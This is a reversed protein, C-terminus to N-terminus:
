SLFSFPAKSRERTREDQAKVEEENERRSLAFLDQVNLHAYIHVCPAYLSRVSRRATVYTGIYVYMNACPLCMTWGVSHGKSRTQRGSEGSEMWRESASDKTKCIGLRKDGSSM